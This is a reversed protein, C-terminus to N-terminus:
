QHTWINLVVTSVQFASKGIVIVLEVEWDIIFNFNSANLFVQFVVVVKLGLIHQSILVKLMTFVGVM